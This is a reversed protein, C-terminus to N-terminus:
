ISSNYVVRVATYQTTNNNYYHLLLLMSSRM